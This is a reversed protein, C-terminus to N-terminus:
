VYDAFREKKREKRKVREVFRRENEGYADICEQCREHCGDPEMVEDAEEAMCALSRLADDLSRVPDGEVQADMGERFRASGGVDRATTKTTKRRPSQMITDATASPRSYATHSPVTAYPRRRRSLTPDTTVGPQSLTHNECQTTSADVQQPLSCRSPVAPPVDHTASTARRYTSVGSQRAGAATVSQQSSQQDINPQASRYRGSSQRRIVNAAVTSGTAPDVACATRTLLNLETGVEDKTDDMRVVLSPPDVGYDVKVVQCRRGKRYLIDGKQVRGQSAHRDRASPSM